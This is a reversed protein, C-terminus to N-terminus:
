TYKKLFYVALKYFAIQWKKNQLILNIYDM